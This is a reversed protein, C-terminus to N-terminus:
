HATDRGGTDPEEPEPRIRAVGRSRTLAVGFWLTWLGMVITAVLWVPGGAAIGLGVALVFGVAAAVGALAGIWSAWAPTTERASRTRAENGAIVAIAGALAVFAGAHAQAFRQWVEFTATDGAVAAETIVTAEVVAATTVWLAGVILVAWASMTWWHRTLRSGATLVILGAIAFSSLAIASAWHAAMWPTPAEAVTAMFEGLDPSIPPHFAIGAVFLASGIALWGGAARVSADARSPERSDVEENAGNSNETKM